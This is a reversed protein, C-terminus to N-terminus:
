RLAEFAYKINSWFEDLAMLRPKFFSILQPWDEKKFISVPSLGQYVGAVYRGEEESKRPIWEWEGGDVDPLLAKFQLLQEYYIQRIDADHHSLEFGIGAQKNDAHMRFAMDKEGTKYNIWNVKGGEASPIPQMYQGFATWFAQKLQSAEQRSYM